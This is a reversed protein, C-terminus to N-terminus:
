ETSAEKKCWGICDVQHVICGKCLPEGLLYDLARKLWSRM